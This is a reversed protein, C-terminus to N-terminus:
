KILYFIGMSTLFLSMFKTINMAVIISHTFVNFLAILYFALPPYLIFTPSGYGWFTLPTWRPYLIGQKLAEIFQWAWSTFTFTDNTITSFYGTSIIQRFMTLASLLFLFIVGFLVQRRYNMQKDKTPM